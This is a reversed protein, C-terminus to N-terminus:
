AHSDGIRMQRRLVALGRSVRKRVVSPSCQLESAIEDYGRDDLIHAIVAVQQEAPLHSLLKLAEEGEAQAALRALHEAIEDTLTLPPMGLRQRVGNQVRAERYSDILVNRAIRFLWAAPPAGTYRFGNVAELASAFVEATLDAAVEPSATRRLMFVLVAREYREYFEAFAAPDTASEALLRADDVAQSSM